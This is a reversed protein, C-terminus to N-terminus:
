GVADGVASGVADGVSAGLRAGVRAGDLPGVLAGTLGVVTAGVGGVRLGVSAGVARGVGCGVDMESTAASYPIQIPMALPATASSPAARSCGLLWIGRLTIQASSCGCPRAFAAPQRVYPMPIHGPPRPPNRDLWVKCQSRIGDERGLGREGRLWLDQAKCDQCAQLGLRTSNRSHPKPYSALPPCCRDFRMSFTYNPGHLAMAPCWIAATPMAAPTEAHNGKPDALSGHAPRCYM